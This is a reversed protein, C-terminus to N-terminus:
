HCQCEFMGNLHSMAVDAIGDFLVRRDGSFDVVRINYFHWYFYNKM